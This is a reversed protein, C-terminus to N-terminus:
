FVWNLHQTPYRVTDLRDALDQAKQQVLDNETGAQCERLFAIIETECPEIQTVSGTPTFQPTVDQVNM